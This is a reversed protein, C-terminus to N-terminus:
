IAVQSQSYSVAVGKRTNMLVETLPIKDHAPIEIAGVCNYHIVLRQTKEGDVKEAHYVDIHDILENIMSPTITKARTYKRVTSIFSDTTMLQGSEQSLEAKLIKVRVTIDGQEEEYRKTMKSFRDDSIKGTANDEYMREFLRDLEKDRALLTNLEKQKQQNDQELTRKSHGIVAKVFDDEYQGAFKTLRRIEGLVVKELFDLRIYHTATCDGRGSNYNSCNFYKIDHNKQNFHYNLNHGCTACASLFYPCIGRSLFVAAVERNGSDIRSM